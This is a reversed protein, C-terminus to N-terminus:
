NKKIVYDTKNDLISYGFSLIEQRLRDAEAWNKNLKAEWRKEALSKINDPIDDKKKLLLNLGLVEDFKKILAYKTADTVDSKLVDLLVTIAMSTNLNNELASKFAGYFSDFKESNIEGSNLLASTKDLIRNLSAVAGDLREYSFVLPKQYHSMLCFFRYALPDYGHNILNNVTLFDGSSKSM